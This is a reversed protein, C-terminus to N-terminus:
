GGPTLDLRLSVAYLCGLLGPMGWGSLEESVRHQLLELSPLNGSSTHTCFAEELLHAEQHVKITTSHHGWGFNM